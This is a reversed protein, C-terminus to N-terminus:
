NIAKFHNKLFFLKGIFIGVYSIILALIGIAILLYTNETRISTLTHAVFLVCTSLIFPFLISQWFISINSLFLKKHFYYLLIPLPLLNIAFWYMSAGEFQFYHILIYLLPISILALFGNLYVIFQPRSLAIMYTWPILMLSNFLSGLLIWGTAHSLKYAMGHENLWICLIEYKYIYLFVTLPILSHAIINYHKIYGEKMASDNKSNALSSIHPFLSNKVTAGYMIYAVLINYLIAYYGFDSKTLWRALLFNNIDSYIFGFFAILSIGLALNKLELIYTWSFHQFPVIMDTKRYLITKQWLITLISIAIHWYFFLSISPTYLHFLVLVGINKVLTLVFQSYNSLVQKDLGFLAGTYFSHPWQTFIALAVLHFYNTHHGDDAAAHLWHHMIYDSGAYLLLFIAFGITWYAIEQSAIVKKLNRDSECGKQIIEKTILNTLGFDFIYIASALTTYIGIWSYNTVGLYKLVFPLTLLTSFVSLARTFIGHGIHTMNKESMTSYLLRIIGSCSATFGLNHNGFQSFFEFISRQQIANMLSRDIERQEYIKVLDKVQKYSLHDECWEFFRYYALQNKTYEQPTYRNNSQNGDHKRWVGVEKTGILVNGQLASRAATLFDTHLCDDLYAGSHAVRDTKYISSLHSFGYHEICLKVYDYGAMLYYGNTYDKIIPLNPASIRALLNSQIHVINDAPHAVVIDMCNQIWNKNTYYDDSDLNVVWEANKTISYAYQYNLVRGLRSPNRLFKFNYKERLIEVTRQTDDTSHDDIFYIELRPYTLESISEICQELYRENNYHPIQINVTPM